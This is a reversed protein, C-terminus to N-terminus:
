DHNYNDKNQVYITFFLFRWSYEYYKSNRKSTPTLYWLSLHFQIKILKNKM